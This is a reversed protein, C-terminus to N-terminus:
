KGIECNFGPYTARRDRAKLKAVTHRAGINDLLHTLRESVSACVERAASTADPHRHRFSRRWSTYPRRLWIAWTQAIQEEVIRLRTM